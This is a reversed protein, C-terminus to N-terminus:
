TADDDKGRLVDGILDFLSEVLRWAFADVEGGPRKGWTETMRGALEEGKTALQGAVAKRGGKGNFALKLAQGALDAILPSLM